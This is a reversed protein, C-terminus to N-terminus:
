LYDHIYLWEGDFFGCEFVQSWKALHFLFAKALIGPREEIQYANQYKRSNNAQFGHRTFFHGSKMEPSPERLPRTLQIVVMPTRM